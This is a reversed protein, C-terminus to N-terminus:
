VSAEKLLSEKEASHFVLITKVQLILSGATAWLAYGPSLGITMVGESLYHFLRGGDADKLFGHVEKTAYPSSGFIGTKLTLLGAILYLALHAVSSIICVLTNLALLVKKLNPSLNGEVISKNIWIIGKQGFSRCKKMDTFDELKKLDDGYTSQTAAKVACSILLM